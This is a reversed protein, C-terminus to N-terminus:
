NGKPFNFSVAKFSKGPLALEILTADFRSTAKLWEAQAEFQATDGITEGTAANAVAKFSLTETKGAVRAAIEFQTVPTRWFGTMHPKLLYATLKGTAADRVFELHGEENGLTVATGGHPPEHHHSHGGASAHDHKEGCGVVLALSLAFLLPKM